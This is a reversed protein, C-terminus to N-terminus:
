FLLTLALSQQLSSVNVSLKEFSSGWRSPVSKLKPPAAPERENSEDISMQDEIDVTTAPAANMNSTAAAVCPEVVAELEAVQRQCAYSVEACGDTFRWLWDCDEDRATDDPGKQLFVLQTNLLWRACGPLVGRAARVTLIDFSKYLRRRVGFHRSALCEKLHEPREGTPGPANLAPFSPMPILPIQGEDRQVALFRYMTADSTGHAHNALAWAREAEQHAQTHPPRESQPILAAAWSAMEASTADVRGNESFSM